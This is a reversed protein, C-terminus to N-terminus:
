AIVWSTSAIAPSPARNASGASLELRPRAQLSLCVTARKQRGSSPSLGMGWLSARGVETTYGLALGM